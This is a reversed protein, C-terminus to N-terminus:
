SRRATAGTQQTSQNSQKTDGVRQEQRIREAFPQKELREITEALLESLPHALEADLADAARTTADWVDELWPLLREGDQTLSIFRDRKDEGVELQVLGKAALLSVTQSAASHSINSQSAIDKITQRGGGMLAKMVPTFRPTYFPHRERYIKDLDGDMLEILRRLQTGIGNALLNRM